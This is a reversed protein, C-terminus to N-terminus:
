LNPLSAVTLLSLSFPSLANHIVAIAAVARLDNNVGGLTTNLLIIMRFLNDVNMRYLNLMHVVDTVLMNMFIRNGFVLGTLNIM